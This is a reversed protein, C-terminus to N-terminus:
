WNQLQHLMQVCTGHLQANVGNYHMAHSEGSKGAQVATQLSAFAAKGALSLITADGRRQVQNCM